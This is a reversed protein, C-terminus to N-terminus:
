ELDVFVANDTEGLYFTSKPPLKTPTQPQLRQGGALFTGYTSNLDTVVFVGEREDYGLARNSGMHYVGMEFQRRYTWRVNEGIMRSEEQAFAARLNFILDSSADM